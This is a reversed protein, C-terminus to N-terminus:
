IKHKHEVTGNDSVVMIRNKILMSLNFEHISCIQDSKSNSVHIQEICSNCSDSWKLKVSWILNMYNNHEVSGHEMCSNTEWM